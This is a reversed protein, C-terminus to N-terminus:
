GSSREVPPGSWPTSLNFTSFPIPLCVEWGIEISKRNWKEATAQWLDFGLEFGVEVIAELLALIREVKGAPGYGVVSGLNAYCHAVFALRREVADVHRPQGPEVEALKNRRWTTKPEATYFSVGLRHALLDLYCVADALEEVVLGLTVGEDRRRWKKWNNLAEGFEGLSALFWTTPTWQLDPDPEYGEPVRHGYKITTRLVNEERFMDLWSERNM